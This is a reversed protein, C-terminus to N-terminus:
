RKWNASEHKPDSIVLLICPILHPIMAKSKRWPKKYILTSHMKPTILNSPAPFRLLHKFPLTLTQVRHPHAQHSAHSPPKWNSYETLSCVLFLISTFHYRIFMFRMGRTLIGVPMESARADSSKRWTRTNRNVITVFILFPIHHAPNPPFRGRRTGM